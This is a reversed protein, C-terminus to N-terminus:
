NYERLEAEIDEIEILVDPPTAIGMKAQQERLKLLRRMKAVQLAQDGTLHITDRRGARRTEAQAIVEGMRQHLRRFDIPKTFYAIAGLQKAQERTNKDTFATTIIVPVDPEAHKIAELVRLGPLGPLRLDLLVLDYRSALFAGMAESGTKVFDIKYGGLAELIGQAIYALQDEILLVKKM